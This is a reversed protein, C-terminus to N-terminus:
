VFDWFQDPQQLCKGIFLNKDHFPCKPKQCVYPKYQLMDAPNVADEPHYQGDFLVMAACPYLYGNTALVPKVSGCYCAPHPAADWSHDYEYLWDNNMISETKHDPNYSNNCVKCYKLFPFLRQIMYLNERYCLNSKDHNIYTIGVYNATEIRKFDIPINHDIYGNVSIRIWALYSIIESTLLHLWYGNTILGIKYGLKHLLFILLNIDPYCLPDGGGSIEVTKISPFLELTELITQIPLDNPHKRDEHNSCFECDLNCRTTPFITMTIPGIRNQIHHTFIPLKDVTASLKNPDIM